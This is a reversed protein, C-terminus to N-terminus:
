EENVERYEPYVDGEKVFDSILKFIDKQGTATCINDSMITALEDITLSVYWEKNDRNFIELTKESFGRRHGKIHLFNLVDRLSTRYTTVIM